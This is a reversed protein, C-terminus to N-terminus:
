HALSSMNLGGSPTALKNSRVPKRRMNCKSRQKKAQHAPNSMECEIRRQGKINRCAVDARRSPAVVEYAQASALNRGGYGMPASAWALLMAESIRNRFHKCKGLPAANLRGKFLSEYARVIDETAGEHQAFNDTHTTALGGETRCKFPPAGCKPASIDEHTHQRRGRGGRLQVTFFNPQTAAHTANAKVKDQKGKM